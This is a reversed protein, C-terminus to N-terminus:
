HLSIVVEDDGLDTKKNAQRSLTEVTLDNSQALNLIDPNLPPTM